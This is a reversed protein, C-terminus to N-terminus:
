MEASNPKARYQISHFCLVHKHFALYVLIILVRYKYYYPTDYNEHGRDACGMLLPLSKVCVLNLFM